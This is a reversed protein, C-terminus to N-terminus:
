RCRSGHRLAYFYGNKKWVEVGTGFLGGINAATVIREKAGDKYIKGNKMLVVRGIEPIIDSINQTVLIVSTGSRAIKRLIDCFKYSAHLDLSTTPEDLILARPEHVLARGILLRRAEGSSMEDMARGNLHEVELFAMVDRAKKKMGATPREHYLGISGFFGSLVVDLGTIDRTYAYQLDNSVIGLAFRLEFVNWTEQGWIRFLYGGQAPLPYYERTITKILSSKGAGNPGLVAVNEGEWIRVSISDLVKKNGGKVVTVNEFELLPRDMKKIM